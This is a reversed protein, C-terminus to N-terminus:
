AHNALEAPSWKISHSPIMAGIHIYKEKLFNISSDM